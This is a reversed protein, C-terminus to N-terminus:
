DGPWSRKNFLIERFHNLVDEWFDDERGTEQEYEVVNRMVAKYHREFRNLILQEGFEIGANYGKSHAQAIKTELVSPRYRGMLRYYIDRSYRVIYHLPFPYCVYSRIVPNSYAVGYFVPMQVAEPINKRIM